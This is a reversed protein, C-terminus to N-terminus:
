FYRKMIVDDILAMPISKEKGDEILRLNKLFTRLRFKRRLYHKKVMGQVIKLKKINESYHINPRNRSIMTLWPCFYCNLDVLSVPLVPLSTLRPCCSCLLMRISNPLTPISMLGSNPCYLMTLSAPLQPLRTLKPCDSCCLEILSAPLYTIIELNPCYSCNLIKLSAPLSRIIIINPCDVCEIYTMGDLDEELCFLCM